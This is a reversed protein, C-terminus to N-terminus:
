DWLNYFDKSFMEFFKDKHRLQTEYVQQYKKPNEGYLEKSVNYEDMLHLHKVMEDLRQEWEEETYCVPVGSHHEKLHRLMPELMGIFWSDLDWVDTYAWGRRFRQLNRRFEWNKDSIFRRIRRFLKM